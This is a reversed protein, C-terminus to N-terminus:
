RLEPRAAIGIRLHAAINTRSIGIEANRRVEVAAQIQSPDPALDGPLLASSRHHAAGSKRRAFGRRLGAATTRGERSSATCNPISGM